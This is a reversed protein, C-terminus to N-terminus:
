PAAEPSVILTLANAPVLWTGAVRRIDALTVALVQDVETNAIGPAGHFAAAHQLVDALDAPRERGSVEGALYIQRARALDAETMADSAAWAAQAALLADLSDAPVAPAALAFLGFAGPGRREGLIGGQTGVAARAGRVMATNLRSAAGQSLMVELLALAPTDAHSHAPIRYFRGVGVAAANRDTVRITRATSSVPPSCGPQELEPGRPITGFYESVLQRARLTDLDGAVILRARNPTYRERYFQRADETTLTTLSALTGVPSHAYGRCDTSDYLAAVAGSIAGTYPERSLQDRFEELLGLRAESFTTDTIALSRMREAELWLGFALRSSPLVTTYRALEEDVAAGVRGGLDGTVTAHGGSPVSASGAFMLREFLRALGGKAPPEHRSGADYWVTIGVVQSSREPVLVVELGNPLRFEQFAIPRAQQAALAAAPLLFLPLWATSRPLFPPRPAPFRTM